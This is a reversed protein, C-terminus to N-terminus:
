MGRRILAYRECSFPNLRKSKITLRHYLMVEPLAQKIRGVGVFSGPLPMNYDSEYM